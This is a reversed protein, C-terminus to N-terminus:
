PFLPAFNLGDTEPFGSMLNMNQIAQGAAGKVLNDEASVVILRKVREDVVVGIDCFNSGVVHKLQPVEGSPHVRVFPQKEYTCRLIEHCIHQPPAGSAKFSLTEQGLTVTVDREPRILDPFFGESALTAYCTSLIGRAVPLLHATFTIAITPSDNGQAHLLGQEIEPTHRHTAINYAKYDGHVEPHHMGVGFSSRGAGSTGSASNIIISSTDILGAKVFPSLALIASTPYCGPNAVLRASKIEERNWEPLGYVAEELVRTATHPLKYWQEYIEPDRLRFDAGLDCVKLGRELLPPVLDMAKGHGLAIFVFDARAAIEDLNVEELAIDCIGRLHPFLDSLKAGAREASASAFTLAARPHVALIRALEAGGYGSAGIIAM